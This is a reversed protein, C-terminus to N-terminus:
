GLANDLMCPDHPICDIGSQGRTAIQMVGIGNEELYKKDIGLTKLPINIEYFSDYSTDHNKTTADVYKQANYVDETTSAGDLMKIEKPLCGEAMKYEIGQEKFNLCYEKDYSAGGNDDAAIFYGPTGLGVKGSMLLINDVRTEFNIMLADWLLKGNAMKGSMAPRNGVNLALMLPVDLVRGGDSLPGDGKNAWTDTTNVMQWGIYLNDNDWAAYLAYDDLVCNEHGGKFNNAIDWAGGQAILMDESWDSFDGDIKITAEKGVNKSPNTRYLGESEADASVQAAEAVVDMISQIRTFAATKVTQKKAAKAQNFVKKYTYTETTKETGKTAVVQLTVETDAIKGQGVAVTTSDKFSKQVGGDITYYASDANKVTITVDLTEEDFSTGSKQDVKVSPVNENEVEYTPWEKPEVAKKTGTTPEATATAVEVETFKGDAYSYAKGAEFTYGPQQAAPDQNNNGDNFIVKASGDVGSLTYTYNGDSGKTMTNGPWKGTYDKTTEGEGYAYIYMNAWGSPLKAIITNEGATTTSSGTSGKSAKTYVCSEKVLKGDKGFAAVYLGVQDGAVLEEKGVTVSASGTFEKWDAGDYSYYAKEANSATVKVTMAETFTSGDKKDVTISATESPAETAAVTTAEPAATAVPTAKADYLVVVSKANVKISAKGGSVSITGNKGTADEYTGDALGTLGSVEVTAANDKDFNAVVVGKNGRKVITAKGNVSCDEKEGNMANKFNNVAAVTADKWTYDSKSMGLTDDTLEIGKDTLKCGSPRAFFLSQVDARSAITAWGLRLTDETIKNIKGENNKECGTAGWANLYTDHNEVWNIINKADIKDVNTRDYGFAKQQTPATSIVIDKINWGQQSETVKMGEDVYYSIKSDCSEKFDNLIEGYILISNGYKERIKGITNKWFSDKAEGSDYSTGIHKATDIRVGSAGDQMLQDLYDYFRKQVDENGTNVDAVGVNNMVMAVRDYDGKDDQGYEKGTNHFYSSNSWFDAVGPKLAYSGAKGASAIHNAIVDVIISIGYKKAEACLEKFEDESGLVADSTKNAVAHGYGYDYPQYLKWWENNGSIGVKRKNGNEDEEFTIDDANTAQLPSTQVVSYGAKAIEPLNAKIESLKWDWAHLINGENASVLGYDNANVQTAESDVEVTSASTAFIPAPCTGLITSTGMLVAMLSGMIKRKINHM